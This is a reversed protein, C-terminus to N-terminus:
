GPFTGSSVRDCRLCLVHVHRSLQATVLHHVPVLYVLINVRLHKTTITSDSYKRQYLAPAFSGCDSIEYHVLTCWEKVTQYLLTQQKIIRKNHGGLSRCSVPPCVTKVQTHTHGHASM